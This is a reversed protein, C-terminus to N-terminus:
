HPGPRWTPPPRIITWSLRSAQLAQEAAYKMRFLEIPHDAAAGHVSVLIFREVGAQCAAQILASNGQLDVTQPNSDGTGSLGQIASIVVSARAVAQDIASGDQMSGSVIEIHEVSLQQARHPVFTEVRANQPV